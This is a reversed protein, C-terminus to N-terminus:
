RFRLIRPPVKEWEKEYHDPDPKFPLGEGGMVLIGKPAVLMSHGARGYPMKRVKAYTRTAPNLVYAGDVTFPLAGDTFVDSGGTVVLRGDPLLAVAHATTAYPAAPFASWTATKPDYCDVAATSSGVGDIEGGTVIVGADTWTAQHGYRPTPLKGTKTWVRTKPDFVLTDPIGLEDAEAEQRESTGGVVLIRGDGMVTATHLWRPAPLPPLKEWAKAGPVLLLASNTEAADYDGVDPTEAVRGGTVLISGDALISVTHLVRGRPLDPLKHWRTGDFLAGQRSAKRDRAGGVIALKKGRSGLRERRALTPPPTDVRTWALKRVDVHWLHREKDGALVWADGGSQYAHVVTGVSKPIKANKWTWRAPKKLKKQAHAPAATAILAVGLLLPLLRTM